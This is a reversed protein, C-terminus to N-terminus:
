RQVQVWGKSQKGDQAVIIYYYVGDAQDKADWDNQYNAYEKVLRGWRNFIQVKNNAPLGQLVLTENLRDGNPTIINPLKLEPVDIIREAMSTPCKTNGAKNYIALRVLYKGAKDITLEDPTYKRTLTVEPETVAVGKGDEIRRYTWLISDTAPNVNTSTNVFTFVRPPVNDRNAYFARSNATFDATLKPEVRVLISSTDRCVGQRFGVRPRVTLYYRTTATPKVTINQTKNDAPNLGNAPAFPTTPSGSWEYDYDQLSNRWVSDPRLVQGQIALSEGECLDAPNAGAAARVEAFNGQKVEITLVRNQVGKTPCANDEIKFPIRVIRGVYAPDPQFYMSISPKTTGNGQVTGGIVTGISGFELLDTINQPLTVFLQQNANPDTFDIRIRSYNCSYVTLYTSDNNSVPTTGSNPTQTVVLPANPAQNSSCNYVNVLMDRRISGIKVRVGNVRRYETVKGVVVFKQATTVTVPTFSVVGTGVDFSFARRQTLNPCTGVTEYKVAIPLTASFNTVVPGPPCPATCGGTTVPACAAGTYAAFNNTQNCSSLPQDLSYVLEDGESNTFLVDQAAFSLTGPQGGCIFAVPEQLTTFDPSMNTINVPGGASNILNNLTAEFRFAGGVGLNQTNPRATQEVSLVWEQAPPLDVLAEYTVQQYNPYTLTGGNPPCTAQAQVTPCYPTGVTPVGVLNMRYGAAPIPTSTCGANRAYLTQYDEYAIGSCDRFYRLTVRYQNGSVWKYTLQGGQVHSAHAQQGSVLLLLWALLLLPTSRLLKHM